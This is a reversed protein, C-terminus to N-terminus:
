VSFLRAKPQCQLLRSVLDTPLLRIAEGVLCEAWDPEGGRCTRPWTRSTTSGSPATMRPYATACVREAVREPDTDWFRIAGDEGVDEPQARRSRPGDLRGSGRSRDVPGGRAARRRGGRGAPPGHRRHQHDRGHRAPPVASEGAGRCTARLGVALPPRRGARRPSWRADAPQFATLGVYPALGEFEVPKEAAMETALSRWRSEWEVRDGGCATAYAVTM